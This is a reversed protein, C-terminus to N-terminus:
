ALTLMRGRVLAGIRKFNEGKRSAGFAMLQKESFKVDRGSRSLQRHLIAFLSKGRLLRGFEAIIEALLGDPYEEGEALNLSEHYYDSDDLVKGPHTRFPSRKDCFYRYVSLAYWKSFKEIDAHFKRLEEETLLKILEGDMFLDNEISYGETTIIDELEELDPIGTHVWLDNDVIFAVPTAVKQEKLRRRIELVADKNGVPLMDVGIDRLEEEVARYFIIDNKGEVLVTPLSTRKLLEFLEDVTPRANNPM